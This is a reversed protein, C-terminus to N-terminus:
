DRRWGDRATAQSTAAARVPSTVAAGAAACFAGSLDVITKVTSTASIADNNLGVKTLGVSVCGSRPENKTVSPFM